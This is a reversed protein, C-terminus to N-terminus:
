IKTEYALSRWLINPRHKCCWIFKEVLTLHRQSNKLKEFLIQWMVTTQIRMNGFRSFKLWELNKVGLVAWRCLRGKRPNQYDHRQCNEYCRPHLSFKQWADGIGDVTILNIISWLGTKLNNVLAWEDVNSLENVREDCIRWYTDDAFKNLKRNRKPGAKIPKHGEPKWGGIAFLYQQQQQETWESFHSVAQYDAASIVYSALTIESDQIVHWTSIFSRESVATCRASHSHGRIFNVLWCAPV